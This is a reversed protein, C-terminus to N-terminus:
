GKRNGMRFVASPSPITRQQGKRFRSAFVRRQKRSMGHKETRKIIRCLGEDSELRNVDDVCDGGALNLLILSMVVQSDTWGQSDSSAKLYRDISKSLGAAQALDLYIPLGGFGTMESKQKDNEYKFPLIGQTM